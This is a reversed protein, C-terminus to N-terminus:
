LGGFLFIAALSYKQSKKLNLRQIMFLPLLLIVIDTLLNTLEMGLATNAPRLRCASSSGRTEWILPISSCLSLEM